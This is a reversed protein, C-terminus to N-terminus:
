PAAPERAAVATFDQEGKFSIAEILLRYKVGPELPAARAGKVATRMGQIRTGYAFEMIPVSNSESILHWYNTTLDSVPVVRVTKLRLPQTFGFTVPNVTPARSPRAATPRSRVYIRVHDRAFWYSNCHLSLGALLVALIILTWVKKTM